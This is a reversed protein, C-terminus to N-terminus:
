RRTEEILNRLSSDTSNVARSIERIKAQNNLIRLMQSGIKSPFLIRVNKPDCGIRENRM